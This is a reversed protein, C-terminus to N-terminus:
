HDHITAYASPLEYNAVLWRPQSEQFLRSRQLTLVIQIPESQEGDAAGGGAVVFQQRIVFQGYPQPEYASTEALQVQADAGAAALKAIIPDDRFQEYPTKEPKPEPPGPMPEPRQNAAVTLRFAKEIDGAVLLQIWQRGVHEAQGTRLSRTVLDRSVVATGSAVCLALGATAAWRGVLAGDSSDIRRIAVVSVAVGILPIALLLPWAFCLPAALGVILSVIALASLTRYEAVQQADDAHFAPESTPLRTGTEV